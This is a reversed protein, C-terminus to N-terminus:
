GSEDKIEQIAQDFGARLGDTLMLTGDMVGRWYPDSIQGNATRPLDAMIDIMSTNIKDMAAVLRNYVTGAMEPSM